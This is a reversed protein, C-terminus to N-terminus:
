TAKKQGTGELSNKKQQSPANSSLELHFAPLYSDGIYRRLATTLLTLLSPTNLKDGHSM